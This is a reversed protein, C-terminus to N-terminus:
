QGPGKHQGSLNDRGQGTANQDSRVDGGCDGQSWHADDEITTDFAPQEGTGNRNRDRRHLEVIYEALTRITSGQM